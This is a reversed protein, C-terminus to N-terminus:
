LITTSQLAPIGPDPTRERIGATKPILTFGAPHSDRGVPHNHMTPRTLIGVTKQILTLGAPHSDRGVPHYHM